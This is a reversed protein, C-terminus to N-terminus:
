STGTKANYLGVFAEWTITVEQRSEERVRGALSLEVIRKAALLRVRHDPPFVLEGKKKGQQPVGELDTADLAEDIRTLAKDVLTAVRDRHADLLESILLKTGDSNAERSAWSRSVGTERAVAAIPKGEVVAAAIKQRRTERTASTAGKQAVPRGRQPKVKSSGM